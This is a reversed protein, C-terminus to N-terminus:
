FQNQSHWGRPVLQFSSWVTGLRFNDDSRAIHHYSQRYWVVSDASEISERNAIYRAANNIHKPCTSLQNDAAYRECTNYKSFYIAQKLWPEQLTNIRSYTYNNPIIDYAPVNIGEYPAIGDRVMWLRKLEPEEVRSSEKTLTIINVIKTLRDETPTSTVELVQDDNGTLGLDFDLRWGAHITFNELTNNSSKTLQGSLGLSPEIIGNEYFRWRVSYIRPASNYHTTLEFFSGQRQTEYKYQYGYDQTKRCLSSVRAMTKISGNPCDASTLTQLNKGLGQQTVVYSPTTSTDLVTEIQSLSAEGLVRRAVKNPAAYYVQSLALGEESRMEACMKWTAGSPFTKTITNAASCSKTPEPAAYSTPSCLLFLAIVIFSGLRQKKLVM